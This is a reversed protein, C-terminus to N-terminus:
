LFCRLVEWGLGSPLFCLPCLSLLLAELPQFYANRFGALGLAKGRGQESKSIKRTPTKESLILLYSTSKRGPKTSVSVRTWRSLLFVKM